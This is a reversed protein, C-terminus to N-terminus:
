TDSQTRARTNWAAVATDLTEGSKLDAWATLDVPCENDDGCTILASGYSNDPCVILPRKGCFPCALLDADM